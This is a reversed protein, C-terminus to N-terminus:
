EGVNALYHHLTEIFVVNRKKKQEKSLSDFMLHLLKYDQLGENNEDIWKNFFPNYNRYTRYAFAKKLNNYSLETDELTDQLAAAVMITEDYSLEQAIKVIQSIHYEYSYIDYTQNAHAKQAVMLARELNKM